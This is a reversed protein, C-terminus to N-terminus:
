HGARVVARARGLAALSLRRYAALAGAYRAQLPRAFQWGLRRATRALATRGVCSAEAVAVGIEARRPRTGATPAFAAAAQAPSSYRYGALQMCRAWRGVAHQYAPDNLVQSQWIAPLDDTVTQAQFWARFERYLRTEADTRCSDINQGVVGGQPLVATVGRGRPGVGNLVVDYDQRRTAPLSSVYRQEAIAGRQLGAAGGGFGYRRASAVSSVLYPFLPDAPPSTPWYRFHHRAMCTRILIQEAAYLLRTDAITLSGAQQMGTAAPRPRSGASSAVALSASALAGILVAAAATAALRHRARRPRRQGPGSM